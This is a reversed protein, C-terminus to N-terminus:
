TRKLLHKRKNQMLQMATVACDDWERPLGQLWRSLAPNLQGRKATSVRGGNPMLGSATVPDLYTVSGTMRSHCGPCVELLTQIVSSYGCDCRFMMVQPVPEEHNAVLRVQRGLQDLRSRISGNPNVGETNMGATDKYDRGSPRGWAAPLSTLQVCDQLAGSRGPAKGMGSYRSKDIGHTDHVAPTPWSIYDSDSIRRESARLALISQGSPTVRIKWTLKFLTSGLLLVRAALKSALFDSRDANTLLGTGRRGCTGSTMLGLVRAQRASLNVRVVGPGSPEITLGDPLVYLTVGFALEPSGIVNPTDTFTAQDSM